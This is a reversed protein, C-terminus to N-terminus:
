SGVAIQLLGTAIPDLVGLHGVHRLKFKRKIIEVM